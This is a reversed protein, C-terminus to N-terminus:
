NKYHKETKKKGSESWVILLGDLKGDKFHGEFRKQGSESWVIWPGDFKGNKYHTESKLKGNEWYEKKVEPEQGYVFGNGSFLFLFTITLLLKLPKTNMEINEIAM